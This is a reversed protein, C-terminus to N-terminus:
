MIVQPEVFVILPVLLLPTVMGPFGSRSVKSFFKSRFAGSVQAILTDISARSDPWWLLSGLIDQHFGIMEGTDINRGGFFVSELKEFQTLFVVASSAVHADVHFSGNDERILSYINVDQVDRCRRSTIPNLQSTKEIHLYKVLPMADHLFLRSTAACSLVSDYDLYDMVRAWVEPPLEGVDTEYYKSLKKGDNSDITTQMQMQMQRGERCLSLETRLRKIPRGGPSDNTEEM